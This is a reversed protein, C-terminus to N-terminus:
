GGGALRFPRQLILNAIHPHREAVDLVRERITSGLAPHWAGPHKVFRAESHGYGGGPAANGSFLNARCDNALPCKRISTRGPRLM